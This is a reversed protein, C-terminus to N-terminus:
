GWAEQRWRWAATEAQRQLQQLEEMSLNNKRRAVISEQAQEKGVRSRVGKFEPVLWQGRAFKCMAGPDEVLSKFDRELEATTKGELRGHIHFWKWPVYEGLEEEVFFGRNASM